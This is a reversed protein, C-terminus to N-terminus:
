PAAAVHSPGNVPVYRFSSPHRARWRQAASASVVSQRAERQASASLRALKGIAGPGTLYPDWWVLQSLGRLAQAEAWQHALAAIVLEFYQARVRNTERRLIQRISAAAHGSSAALQAAALRVRGAEARVGAADARQVVNGLVTLERAALSSTATVGSLDPSLAQYRQLTSPRTSGGGCGALLVACGLLM